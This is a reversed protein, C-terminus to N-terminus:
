QVGHAVDTPEVSRLAARIWGCGAFADAGSLRFWEQPDVRYDAGAAVLYFKVRLTEALTRCAAQRALEERRRLVRYRLSRLLGLLGARRPVPMVLAEAIACGRDIAKLLMPDAHRADVAVSELLSTRPAPGGSELLRQYSRNIRDLDRWDAAIADPLGAHMLLRNQGAGSLFCADAVAAPARTGARSVPVWYVVTDGARPAAAETVFVPEGSGGGSESDCGLYHLVTDSTGGRLRASHGDWVALLLSSRRALAAGLSRYSDDRGGQEDLNGTPTLEISHVLPHALLDQLELRWGADFDELYRALPMPLVAEVPVGAEVAARAVILDAGPAMGSLIRVGTSPIAGVLRRLQLNVIRVLERASAPEIDRHGTVGIYLPFGREHPSTMCSNFWM